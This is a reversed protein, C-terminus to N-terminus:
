SAKLQQRVRDLDTRIRELTQRDTGEILGQEQLRGLIAAAEGYDREAAVLDERRLSAAASRSLLAYADARGTLALAVTVQLEVNSPNVKSLERSM